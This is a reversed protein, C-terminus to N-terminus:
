RCLLNSHRFQREDGSDRARYPSERRRSWISPISDRGFGFDRKSLEASSRVAPIPVSVSDVAVIALIVIPAVISASGTSVHFNALLAAFLDHDPMHATAVSRLRESRTAFEYGELEQVQGLVLAPVLEQRAMLVPHQKM